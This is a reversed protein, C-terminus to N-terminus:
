LSFDTKSFAIILLIKILSNPTLVLKKWINWHIIKILIRCTKMSNFQHFAYEPLQLGEAIRSYPNEGAQMREIRNKYPLVRTLLFGYERM